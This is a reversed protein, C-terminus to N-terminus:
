WIQNVMDAMPLYIAWLLSGIVWAIFCMLLPELTAMLADINNKLSSTYHDHIKEYM